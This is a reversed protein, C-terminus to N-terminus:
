PNFSAILKGVNETTAANKLRVGISNTATLSPIEASFINQPSLAATGVSNNDYVVGYAVSQPEPMACTGTLTGNAFTTGLRVASIPPMSFASLSDTTYQFLYADSGIGTGNRAYRIYGNTPIPNIFYSAAYIAAIGNPANIINGSIRNIANANSSTFAPGRSGAILNGVIIATGTSQNDVAVAAAATGGSAGYMEGIVNIVGGGQNIIGRSTQTDGEAFITGTFTCTGGGVMIGAQAAQSNFTNIIGTANVVTNGGSQQFAGVNASCRFTGGIVNTTGNTVAGGTAGAGTGAWIMPNTETISASTNRTITLTGLSTHLIGYNTTGGGGAINGRVTASNTGTLTLTGTNIAGGVIGCGARDNTTNPLTAVLTVNNLLNFTGGATATTTAGDKWLRSTASSNTITRVVVDTNVHVIFNNSYVDDFPDASAPPYLVGGTGWPSTAPNTDSWLGSRFARVNAM